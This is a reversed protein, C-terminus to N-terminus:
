EPSPAGGPLHDLTELTLQYTNPVRLWDLAERDVPQRKMRVLGLRQLDQAGQSRTDDSLGFRAVAESPSLWFWTASRCWAQRSLILFM